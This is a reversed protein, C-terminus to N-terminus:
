HLGALIGVLLLPSLQCLEYRNWSNGGTNACETIVEESPLIMLAMVGFQEPNRLLPGRGLDDLGLFRRSPPHSPPFPYSQTLATKRVYKQGRVHFHDRCNGLLKM